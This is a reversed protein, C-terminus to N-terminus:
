PLPPLEYNQIASRYAPSRQFRELELRDRIVAKKADADPLAFAGGSAKWEPPASKRIILKRGIWTFDSEDQMRGPALGLSQLTLPLSNEQLTDMLEQILAAVRPEHLNEYIVARLMPDGRLDVIKLRKDDLRVIRLFAEAGTTIRRAKLPVDLAGSLISADIVLKQRVTGSSGAKFQHGPLLGRKRPARDQPQTIQGQMAKPLLDGYRPLDVAPTPTPRPKESSTERGSGQESSPIRPRAVPAPKEVIHLAVPVPPAKVQPRPPVWFLFAWGLILHAVLGYFLSRLIM